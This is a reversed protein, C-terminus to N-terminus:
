DIQSQPNILKVRLLQLETEVGTASEKLIATDTHFGEVDANADHATIQGDFTELVPRLQLSACRDEKNGTLTRTQDPDELPNDTACRGSGM